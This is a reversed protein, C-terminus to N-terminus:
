VFGADGGKMAQQLKQFSARGKADVAVVEGDLIANTAPFAAVAKALHAFKHSWDKRNRSWFRVRGRDLHCLMRYGDFKLEHLWRDGEPPKDQLTALQPPIFDPMPAKRTGTIKQLQKPTM